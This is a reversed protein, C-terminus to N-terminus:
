KKEREIARDNECEFIQLRLRKILKDKWLCTLNDQAEKILDYKIKLRDYRAELLTM